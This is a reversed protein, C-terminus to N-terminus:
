MHKQTKWTLIDTNRISEANIHTGIKKKFGTCMKPEYWNVYFFKYLTFFLLICFEQTCNQFLFWQLYVREMIISNHLTASSIAHYSTYLISSKSCNKSIEVWFTKPLVHLFIKVFSLTQELVTSLKLENPASTFFSNDECFHSRNGTPGPRAPDRASDLVTYM